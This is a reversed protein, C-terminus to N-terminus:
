DTNVNESDPMPFAPPLLSSVPDSEQRRQGETQPRGWLKLHHLIKEVVDPNDIFAIVCM